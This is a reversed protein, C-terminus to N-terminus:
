STPAPGRAGRSRSDPLHQPTLCNGRRPSGEPIPRPRDSHSAHGAAASQAAVERDLNPDFRVPVACGFAGSVSSRAYKSDALATPCRPSIRRAPKVTPGPGNHSGTRVSEKSVSTDGSASQAQLETQVALLRPASTRRSGNGTGERRVNRHEPPKGPAANANSPTAPPMSENPSPCHSPDANPM